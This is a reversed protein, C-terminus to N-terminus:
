AMKKVQKKKALLAGGIIMAIGAGIFVYTRNKAAAISSDTGLANMLDGGSNGFLAGVGQMAKETELVDSLSVGGLVAIIVGIVCLAIGIINKASM